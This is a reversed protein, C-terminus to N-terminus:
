EREGFRGATPLPGDSAAARAVQLASATSMGAYWAEHLMGNKKFYCAITPGYSCAGLCGSESLRVSGGRQYYALGEKEMAQWLAQYLSGSGRVTCSGSVCVLLHARTPHLEPGAM